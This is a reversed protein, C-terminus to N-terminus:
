SNKYLLRMIESFLQVTSERWSIWPHVTRTIDRRTPYLTCFLTLENALNLPDAIDFFTANSSAVERFVPIDSCMVPLGRQFAEVIPLGFGEALSAIILSSGNRYAFDLDFDTADRLLYLKKGFKLHTSVRKLFKDSLWSHKGIIVLVSSGGFSWYIDFADLVYSLNKRPEISGVVIFVHEDANFIYKIKENPETCEDILDLEFGLYFHGIPALTKANDSMEAQRIYTRMQNEVSMSIAVFSDALRLQNVMWYHFIKELEPVCMKSHTLPILDYIVGVVLGGMDKFHKVAPWLPTVWSSDLLLLISGHHSEYQSLDTAVTQNPGADIYKTHGINHISRFIIKAVRQPLLLCWTLGKAYHPSYLFKIVPEFPLIKSVARRFVRFATHIFKFFTQKLASHPNSTSLVPQTTRSKLASKFDVHIFQGKDWIVPVMCYALKTEFESANQIINRVVRPIGTNINNRFTYTCEIFMHRAPPPEQNKRGLLASPSRKSTSSDNVLSHKM